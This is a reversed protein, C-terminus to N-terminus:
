RGRSRAGRASASSRPKGAVRDAAPRPRLGLTLRETIMAALAEPSGLESPLRGEILLSALGHVMSWASLALSMAPEDVLVGAALGAEIADVLVGFANTSAEDLDPFDCGQGASFMVRFHAPHEVAFCVYAIGIQRLRELPEDASRAAVRLMEDRMTRFGEEAVAALLAEKSAFHRYPAAQSVGARRAIERLSLVAAGEKKVQEVAADLLARRLDGHHYSEGKPEARRDKRAEKRDM